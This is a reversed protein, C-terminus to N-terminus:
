QSPPGAIWTTYGLAGGVSASLTWVPEGDPTVEQILGQYSYTVLTNGNDFRHVDGLALCELAPDSWYEWIEQAEFSSGDQSLEIARSLEPQGMGGNVFVLISDELLQMQHQHQFYDSSGDAREFDSHAGGLRWDVSHSQRDIRYISDLTSFSVLYADDEQLYDMANAHPWLEADAPITPDYEALEDDWANYLEITNGEPDREMLRDGWVTLGGLERPDFALYAISGDPLEAFDHHANQLPTERHDTGDLSVEHLLTEDDGELNIGMFLVSRGDQSLVSRAIMDNGESITWWVYDGDEDLIVAASPLAVISSVLLGNWTQVGESREVSLDPLDPPELGTTVVRDASTRLEGDARVVARVVYESAPKMGILVSKYPGDSSVDVQVTRAVQGDLELEFWAAELSDLDVDWTATFVTPIPESQTLNIEFGADKDTGNCGGAWLLICVWIIPRPCPPTM